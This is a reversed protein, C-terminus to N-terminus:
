DICDVACAVGLNEVVHATALACGFTAHEYSFVTLLDDLLGECWVILAVGLLWLFAKPPQRKNGGVMAGAVSSM